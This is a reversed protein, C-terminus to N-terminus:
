LLGFATWIVSEDGDHNRVPCTSVDAVRCVEDSLEVARGLVPAITQGRVLQLNWSVGSDATHLILGMSGVIWGRSNDIFQVAYMTQQFNVGLATQPQWTGGGTVTRLVTGREGV